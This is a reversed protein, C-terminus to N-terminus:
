LARPVPQPPAFLERLIVALQQEPIDRHRTDVLEIRLGPVGRLLRALQENGFSTDRNHTHLSIIRRGTGAALWRAFVDWRAYLADFLVLNKVESQDFAASDQLIAAAAAYGASHALLTISAPAQKPDAVGKLLSRLERVFSSFGGRQEFRPAHADRKLYALQPVILLSNSAAAEHIRALGYGHQTPGGSQCAVKDSGMLVRACSSFGHLMILWHVQAKADLRSPVHVVVDPADGPAHPGTALRFELLQQARVNASACV